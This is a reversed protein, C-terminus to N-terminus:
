HARRIENDRGDDKIIPNEGHAWMIHGGRGNPVVTNIKNVLVEVDHAYVNLIDGRETITVVSNQPSSRTSTSPPSTTMGSPTAPPPLAM